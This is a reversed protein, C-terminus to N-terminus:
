GRFSKRCIAIVREHDDDEAAQILPMEVLM